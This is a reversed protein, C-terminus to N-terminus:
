SIPLMYDVLRSSTKRLSNSLLIAVGKLLKIGINAHRTLVL